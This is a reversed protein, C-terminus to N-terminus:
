LCRDVGEQKVFKHNHRIVKMQEQSGEIDGQFSRHLQDFAPKGIPDPLIESQVHCNPLSSVDIMANAVRTVIRAVQVVNV